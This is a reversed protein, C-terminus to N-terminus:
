MADEYYLMCKLSMDDNELIASIVKSFVIRYSHIMMNNDSCEFLKPTFNINDSRCEMATNLFENLRKNEECLLKVRITIFEILSDIQTIKGVNSALLDFESSLLNVDRDLKISMVVENTKENYIGVYLSMKKNIYFIM